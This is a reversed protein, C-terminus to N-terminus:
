VAMYNAVDSKSLGYRHRIDKIRKRYTRIAEDRYDPVDWYRDQTFDNWEIKCLFLGCGKRDAKEYETLFSRRSTAPNWEVTHFLKNNRGKGMHKVHVKVIYYKESLERPIM